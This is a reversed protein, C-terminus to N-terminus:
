TLAQRCCRMASGRNLPGQAILDLPMASSGQLAGAALRKYGGHLHLVFHSTRPLNRLDRTVNQYAYLYFVIGELLIAGGNARPLPTGRARAAPFQM